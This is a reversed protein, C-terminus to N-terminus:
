FNTMRKLVHKIHTTEFLFSHSWFIESRPRALGRKLARRQILCTRRHKSLQFRLLRSPEDSRDVAMSLDLHGHPLRHHALEHSQASPRASAKADAAATPLSLWALCRGDQVQADTPGRVNSPKCTARRPLVNNHRRTLDLWMTMNFVRKQIYRSQVAVQRGRVTLSRTVRTTMASMSNFLCRRM